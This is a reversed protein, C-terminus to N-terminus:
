RIMRINEKKLPSIKELWINFHKESAQHDLHSLGLPYLSISNSKQTALDALFDIFDGTPPEWSKVYLLIDGSASEVIRQDEELTHSGGVEYTDDVELSLRDNQVLISMEDIAWGMTSNYTKQISTVIVGEVLKEPKFEKEAISAESQILPEEMERLLDRAGSILLIARKLASKLGISALVFLVFRLFLAYFLTIMALFKWWEGLLEAHEIMGSNLKGGLRFYHSHEILELSPVAQPLVAKWPLAFMSVFRHFAEPTIQLTTSWSFAIDQSAVTGMLALFLGLSFVLALEQSRRIIIWNAVLPNVQIKYNMEHNKDTFFIFIREMWYAPSLHILTSKARNARLMALLAMAMTLLPLLFVAGLFYLLNVPESGSYKLLALGSFIGLFFSVILLLLTATSLIRDLKESLPPHPLRHRHTEVWQKLLEVPSSLLKEHELGFSRNEEHTGRNEEILQHIDIYTRLDSNTNKLGAIEGQYHWLDYM